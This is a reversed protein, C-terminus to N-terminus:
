EAPKEAIRLVTKEDKTKAEGSKPPRDDKTERTKNAIRQKEKRFALRQKKLDRM